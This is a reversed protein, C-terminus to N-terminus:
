LIHGGGYPAYNFRGSQVPVARQVPADGSPWEEQRAPEVSYAQQEAFRERNTEGRSNLSARFRSRLERTSDALMDSLFRDGDNSAVTTRHIEQWNPEAQRVPRQGVVPFREDRQWTALTVGAVGAAGALAIATGDSQYTNSWRVVDAVYQRNYDHVIFRGGSMHLTGGNYHSLALEWDQGYQNYLRELYAIGLKVNLRPDMLQERPVGFEGMATSPMIQMVGRAGASSVAQDNFNSEVRAVALALPVPVRGNRSAEDSVMKMVEEKTAAMADSNAAFFGLVALIAAWAGGSLRQATRMKKM